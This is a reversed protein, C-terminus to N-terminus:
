PKLCSSDHPGSGSGQGTITAAVHCRFSNSVNFRGSIRDRGFGSKKPFRGQRDNTALISYGTNIPQTLSRRADPREQDDNQRPGSVCMEDCRSGDVRTTGDNRQAQTGIVNRRIGIPNIPPVMKTERDSNMTEVPKAECRSLQSVNFAVESLNRMRHLSQQRPNTREGDRQTQRNQARTASPTALLRGLLCGIGAGVRRCTRGRLNLLRFLSPMDGNKKAYEDHASLGDM